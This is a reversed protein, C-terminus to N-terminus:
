KTAEDNTITLFDATQVTDQGMWPAFVLSHNERRMFDDGISKGVKDHMYLCDGDTMPKGPRDTGDLWSLSARCKATYRHGKHDITYVGDKYSRVFYANALNASPGSFDPRRGHAFYVVLLTLAITILVTKVTSAKM